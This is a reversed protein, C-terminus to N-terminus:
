VATVRRVSEWDARAFPNAQFLLMYALLGIAWTDVSEDYREAQGRFCRVLDPALYKHTGCLTRLPEDASFRRALGFDVIRVDGSETHLVNEPKLDRHAYRNRFTCARLLGGRRSVLEVMMGACSHAHIHAVGSVISRVHRRAEELSYTRSDLSGRPRLLQGGPLYECVLFVTTPSEYAYILKLIAEHQLIHLAAIERGQPTPGAPM